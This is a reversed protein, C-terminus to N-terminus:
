INLANLAEDNASVVLSLHMVEEISRITEMLNFDDESKDNDTAIIIYGEGQATVETHSLNNLTNVVTQEKGPEVAALLINIAM